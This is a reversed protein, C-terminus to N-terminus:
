EIHIGFVQYLVSPFALCKDYQYKYPKGKRKDNYTSKWTKCAKARNNCDCENRQVHKKKKKIITHTNKWWEGATEIADYGNTEWWRLWRRGDDSENGNGVILKNKTRDSKIVMRTYVTINFYACSCHAFQNKTYKNKKGFM